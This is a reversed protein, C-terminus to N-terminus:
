NESKSADLNTSEDELFKSNKEDTLVM